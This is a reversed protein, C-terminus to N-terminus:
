MGKFQGIGKYGVFVDGDESTEYVRGNADCVSYNINNFEIEDVDDDDDADPGSVFRKGIPDWYIGASYGDILNKLKVLESYELTEADKEDAPRITMVVYDAMHESLTKGDFDDQTLENVFSVFGKKTKDNIETGFEKFTSELKDTLTKSMRSIRKGDVKEQEPEKAKKEKPEPEKLGKKPKAAPKAPEPAAEETKVKPVRPKRPKPKGVDELKSEQEVLKDQLKALKEKAVDPKRVKNNAIKQEQEAIKERTKEIAKIARAYAPSKERQVSIIYDLAEKADFGYNEALTSVIFQIQEM